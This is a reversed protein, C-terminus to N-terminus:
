RPSLNVYVAVGLIAYLCLRLMIIRRLIMDPDYMYYPKMLASFISLLEYHINFSIKSSIFLDRVYINIIYSLISNKIFRQRIYFCELHILLNYSRTENRVMYVYRIISQFFKCINGGEVNSIIKESAYGNAMYVCALEFNSAVKYYDSYKNHIIIKLEDVNDKNVYIEKLSSLARTIEASNTNIFRDSNQDRFEVRRQRANSLFGVVSAIIGIFFLLFTAFGPTICRIDALGVVSGLLNWVSGDDLYPCRDTPVADARTRDRCISRSKRGPGNWGICTLIM